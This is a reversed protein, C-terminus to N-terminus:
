AGGTPGTAARNGGPNAFRDVQMRAPCPERSRSAPAPRRAARRRATRVALAAVVGFAAFPAALLVLIGSRFAAALTRGEESALATRCMVCQAEVPAPWELAAAACCVLTIAALRLVTGAESAAPRM